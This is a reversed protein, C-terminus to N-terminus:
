PAQPATATGTAGPRGAVGLRVVAGTSTESGGAPTQTSVHGSPTATDWWYSVSYRLGAGALEAQAAELAMGRVDPVLVEPSPQSAAIVLDIRSGKRAWTGGTPSQRMVTGVRGLYGREIDNQTPAEWTVTGVEYGSRALLEGAAEARAGTVDPVGGPWFLAVVAIAFLLIAPLAAAMWPSLRWTRTPRAPRGVREDQADM